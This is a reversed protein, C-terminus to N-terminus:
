PSSNLLVLRNQWRFTPEGLNIVGANNIKSKIFSSGDLYAKTGVELNVGGHTSKCDYVARAGAEM